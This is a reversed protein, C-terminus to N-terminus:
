LVRSAPRQGVLGQLLLVQRVPLLPRLRLPLRAADLTCKTCSFRVSSTTMAEAVIPTSGVTLLRGARDLWRLTRRFEEIESYARERQREAAAQQRQQIEDMFQYIPQLAQAFQPPMVPVPTPQGNPGAVKSLAADLERFDVAYNQCIEAVIAAKQSASGQMLGAATKMLNDVAKLPTSNQARILHAHPAIINAFQEAFQRAQGTTSLAQQVQLERSAIYQKAAKPIKAWEAKAETSWKGARRATDPGEPTM